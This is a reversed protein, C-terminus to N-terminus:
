KLYSGYFLSFPSLCLHFCFLINEVPLALTESRAVLQRKDPQVTAGESTGTLDAQGDCLVDDTAQM